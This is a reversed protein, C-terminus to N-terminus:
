FVRTKFPRSIKLKESTNVGSSKATVVSSESSEAVVGVVAVAMPKEKAKEEVVKVETVGTVRFYMYRGLAPIDDTDYTHSLSIPISFHQDM